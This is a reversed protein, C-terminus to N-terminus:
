PPVMPEGAGASEGLGLSIWADTLFIHRTRASSQVSVVSCYPRSTRSVCENAARGSFGSEILKQHDPGDMVRGPHAGEAPAGSASFDTNNMLYRADDVRRSPRRM